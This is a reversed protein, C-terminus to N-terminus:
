AKSAYAAAVWKEHPVSSCCNCVLWDGACHWWGWFSVRWMVGVQANDNIELGGMCYHVVPTIQGIWFHGAPDLTTPFYQKGFPDSGAAATAAAAAANYQELQQQLDAPQLGM